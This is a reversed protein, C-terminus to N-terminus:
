NSASLSTAVEPPMAFLTYEAPLTCILASSEKNCAALFSISRTAGTIFSHPATNMALPPHTDGSVGIFILCGKSASGTGGGLTLSYSSTTLITSHAGASHKTTSLITDLYGPISGQPPM